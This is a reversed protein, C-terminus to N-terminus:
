STGPVRPSPWWGPEEGTAAGAGGARESEARRPADTATVAVLLAASGATSAARRALSSNSHRCDTGARAEFRTVKGVREAWAADNRAAKLALRFGSYMRVAQPRAPPPNSARSLLRARRASDLAYRREAAVRLTYVSAVARCSAKAVPALRGPSTPVAGPTTPHRPRRRSCQTTFAHCALCRSANAGGSRAANAHRCAANSCWIVPRTLTDCTHTSARPLDDRWGATARGTAMASTLATHARTDGLSEDM